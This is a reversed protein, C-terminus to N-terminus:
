SLDAQELKAILEVTWSLKAETTRKKADVLIYQINDKNKIKLKNALDAQKKYALENSMRDIVYLKKGDRDILTRIIGNIHEDDLNFGFGIACIAASAKLKNYFEVYKIAMDISTMPKTGSQTFILPVIFHNSDKTLEQKTGIKNLYPDYYDDVSGNLFTIESVKKTLKSKILSNNYNATAVVSVALDSQNLDDYYGEQLAGEDGVSQSVIYERVTSLFIAIKCFKTWENKPNYLYHWYSDILSKYDLVEAYIQEIIEYAYQVVKTHYGGKKKALLKLGELGAVHYNVSLNGGLDDFIDLELENKEFVNEQINKSLDESLAGLQLQMIAKIIDGLEEKESSQEFQHKQYYTLLIAMYKTTFLKNGKKFVSNYQLQQEVNIDSIPKGLDDFINREFDPIETGIVAQAVADFENIREIIKQRNNSVTDRIIAEYVSEGFAGINKTDYGEPLWKAAYHTSKDISSRMKKFEEKANSNDARFIDLAFKGGTPLGYAIEAGAGFLFGIEKTKKAEM